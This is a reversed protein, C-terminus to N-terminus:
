TARSLGTLLPSRQQATARQRRAGDTAPSSALTRTRAARGDRGAGSLGATGRGRFVFEGGREGALGGILARDPSLSCAPDTRVADGTPAYPHCRGGFDAEQRPRSRCPAPMWDTSRYAAFAPCERWIWELSHGRVNPLDLPLDYGTPLATDARRTRRGALDCGLRGHLAEARRRLLGARGPDARQGDAGALGGGGGACPRTPVPDADARRLQGVGGYFQTNALEVPVASWAFGPEIIAEIEDRDYRHLVVNM